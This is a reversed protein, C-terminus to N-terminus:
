CFMTFIMLFNITILLLHGLHINNVRFSILIFNHIFSKTIPPKVFVVCTLFRILQM